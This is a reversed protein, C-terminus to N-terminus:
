EWNSFSDQGELKRTPDFGNLLNFVVDACAEYLASQADCGNSITYLADRVILKAAHRQLAVDIL